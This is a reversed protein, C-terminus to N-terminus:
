GTILKVMWRSLFALVWAVIIGYGVVFATWKWSRAEVRFTAVTAACPIYLLVFVLYGVMTSLDMMKPLVSALAEEGGGYLVGLTSIVIEKAFFGNLLAVVMQWDFGLPIFLWHLSRGIKGLFSEASGAEVGWPLVSLGWMVLSFFLIISGARILYEKSRLWTNSWLNIWAPFRYVPLEMILGGSHEKVMTKNLWWATGLAVVVGLIYLGFVLLWGRTGFFAAAFLTFVPMRASCAFFPIMIMTKIKDGKNDLVRTAMLAPVSCGFGLVLPVFSKGHLGLRHMFRDVLFSGRAMYGSDELFSLLFFMIVIYPFLVLVNGVGGILGDKVLSSLWAVPFHSALEALWGFGQELYGSFVGGISFTLYFIGGMVGFFVIIGLFPHLLITDLFATFRKKTQLSILKRKVVERAIGACLSLIWETMVVAMERKVKNGVEERIKDVKAFTAEDIGEQQKSGLFTYAKWLPAETGQTAFVEATKELVRTLEDQGLKLSIVLDKDLYQEITNKLKAIDEGKLASIGIVPVGLLESLRPLDLSIGEKEAEDMMNVVVITPVKMLALQVTLYLNAELHTADLINLFLTDKAQLVFSKAVEEEESLIEFSYIGPLDIVSLPVGGVVTVGEKREVTVGPWNGVHQTSGTLRNFILTKGCNPQGILALSKYKIDQLIEVEIQSAMRRGIAVQRHQVGVLIPGKENRIVMGEQIRSLGMEQLRRLEKGYGLIQKLRFRKGTPVRDLTVIM